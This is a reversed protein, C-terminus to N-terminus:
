GERVETSDIKVVHKRVLQGTKQNVDYHVGVVVGKLTIDVKEDLLLPFDLDLTRSGINIAYAHIEQEEFTKPTRGRAEFRM